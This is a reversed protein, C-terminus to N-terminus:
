KAKLANEQVTWGLVKLKKKALATATGTISLVKPGTMGADKAGDSLTTFLSASDPTWSLADIAFAGAVGDDSTTAIPFSAEGYQVFGTVAHTREQYAATLEVGRRAFYAAARTDAASARAIVIALNKVDGMRSMADVMVTVDVPTFNGNALFAEATPNDVGFAFMKERAMDLLQAPTDDRIAANLTSATSVGSVILGAGGPIVAVGATVVLGGAAGAGALAKIEQALPKFDTYPDVSYQYAILRRQKAAGSVSELLNDQTKGANHVGSAVGSLFHGVGSVTAGLTEGPATVLHGAFEFPSRGAKVLGDVFEKSRTTKDLADLADLEHIRMMLMQDGSVDFDGFSTKIIYNRLFGDSPVSDAISYNAGAAAKGLVARANFTPPKEFEAAFAASALWCLGIALATGFGARRM